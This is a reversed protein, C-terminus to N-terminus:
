EFYMETTSKSLPAYVNKLKLTYPTFIKHRTVLIIVHPHHISLHIISPHISISPQHNNWSTHSNFDQPQKPILSLVLSSTVSAAIGQVKLHTLPDLLPHSKMEVSLGYHKLFDVGIIAKSIDAIAFVWRFTRRLGLNLTLSCTGYTPSTNNIAQLSPGKQTKRHTHSNELHSQTAGAASTAFMFTVMKMFLLVLSGVLKLRQIRHNYM